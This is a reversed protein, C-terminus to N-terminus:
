GIALYKYGYDKTSSNNLQGDSSNSYWSLTNGRQTFTIAAAGNGGNVYGRTQGAWIFSRLLGNTSGSPYLTGSTQKYEYVIVLKPEFSFTLSNPNNSGYTGTGTYTGTEIKVGLSRAWEPFVSLKDGIMKGAVGDSIIEMGDALPAAAIGDFALRVTEGVSASNLAISQTSDFHIDYGFIGNKAELIIYNKSYDTIIGVRDNVSFHFPNSTNIDISWCTLSSLERLAGDESIALSLIKPKSNSTETYSAYIYDGFRRSQVNTTITDSYTYTADNSVSGDDAYDLRFVTLVGNVNAPFYVKQNNKDAFISVPDYLSSSLKINTVSLLSDSINIVTDGSVEITRIEFTSSGTGSKHFAGIVTYQDGINEIVDLAISGCKVNGSVNESKTFTSGITVSSGDESITVIVAYIATYPYNQIILVKTDSLRCFGAMTVYSSDSKLNVSKIHTVAGTTSDFKFFGVSDSHQSTSNYLVAIVNENIKEIKIPYYYSNNTLPNSTAVISGDSNNVTAFYMSNSYYYCIVSHKNDFVLTTIRGDCDSITGSYDTPTSGTLTYIAEGDVVDCVDGATIEVAAPYERIIAAGNKALYELADNPNNVGDPYLAKTEDSYLVGKNILTGEDTIEGPAPTLEHIDETGAVPTVHYRTPYQVNRDTLPTGNM